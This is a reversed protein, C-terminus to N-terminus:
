GISCMCLPIILTLITCYIVPFDVACARMSSSSEAEVGAEADGEATLEAGEEAEAGAKGEAVMSADAEAGAKGEALMSADAEPQGEPTDPTLVARDM